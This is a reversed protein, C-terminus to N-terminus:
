TEHRKEEIRKELDGARTWASFVLEEDDFEMDFEKELGVLLAVFSLSDLSLSEFPTEPTIEEEELACHERLLALFRENM